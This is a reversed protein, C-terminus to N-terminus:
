ISSGQTMFVHGIDSFHRSVATQSENLKAMVIKVLDRFTDSLDCRKHWCPPNKVGIQAGGPFWRRSAGTSDSRERAYNFSSIKNYEGSTHGSTGRATTSMGSSGSGHAASAAALSYEVDNEYGEPEPGIMALLVGETDFKSLWRRFLGEM